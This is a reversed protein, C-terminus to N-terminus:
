WCIFPLMLLNFHPASFCFLSILFYLISNLFSLLIWITISSLIILIIVSRLFSILYESKILMIHFNTRAEKAFIIFWLSNRFLFCRFLLDFWSLDCYSFLIIPFPVIIIVCFINIMSYSKYIWPWFIPPYSLHFGLSQSCFSHIILHSQYSTFLSLCITLSAPPTSFIVSITHLLHSSLRLLEFDYHFGWIPFYYGWIM